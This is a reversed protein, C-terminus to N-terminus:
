RGMRTAYVIDAAIDELLRVEEEEGFGKPLLGNAIMVSLGTQVVRMKLLINKLEEESFGELQSDKKMEEILPQGMEQDYSKMYDNQNMMLDRFLVSYERAFRLSSLGIDRFPEGSSEEDLIEKGLAFIRKIVEGILEEVDEFNVYIPAISSKLRKAVKRITISDIGEEKAMEFAVEIIQDKTYKKKPPM